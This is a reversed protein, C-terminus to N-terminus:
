PHFVGPPPDTEGRKGAPAHNRRAVLLACGTVILVGGCYVKWSPSTGLFILAMPAVFFPLSQSILAVHSVPLRALAAMYFFRAFVPGTLALGAVALLIAPDRPIAIPTGTALAAGLCGATLVLSRAWTFVYPDVWRVAMKALGELLGWVLSSALILFFGRSVTVGGVWRILLVGGLLLIGGAIEKPRFREGLLLIGFAITVLTESRHLFSVVTSDVERLASYFLYYGGGTLIAIATVWLWGRGPTARIRARLGGHLLVPVSLAVFAAPLQLSIIEFPSLARGAIPALIYIVATFLATLFACIYGATSQRM